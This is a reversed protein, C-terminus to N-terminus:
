LPLITALVTEARLNLSINHKCIPSPKSVFKFTERWNFAAFSEPEPQLRFNFEGDDLIKELDLDFM